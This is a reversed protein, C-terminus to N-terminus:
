RSALPDVIPETAAAVTSCEAECAIADAAKVYKHVKTLAGAPLVATRDSGVDTRGIKM